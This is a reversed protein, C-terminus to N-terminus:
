HNREGEGWGEGGPLPLIMRRRVFRDAVPNVSGAEIFLVSRSQQERERPFPSPHPRDDLKKQSSSMIM